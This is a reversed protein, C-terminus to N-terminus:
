IENFEVDEVYNKRWINIRNQQEDMLAVRKRLEEIEQDKTEMMQRLQLLGPAFNKIFDDNSSYLHHVQNFIETIADILKKKADKLDKQQKRKKYWDYIELGITLGTGIRGIWKTLNAAMNIKGWPKFKFNKFFEDRIRGVM